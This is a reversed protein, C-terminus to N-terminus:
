RGEQDKQKDNAEKLKQALAEASSNDNKFISRNAMNQLYQLMEKLSMKLYYAVLLSLISGVIVLISATM